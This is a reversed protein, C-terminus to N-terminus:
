RTYAPVNKAYLSPYIKTPLVTIFRIFLWCFVSWNKHLIKNVIEEGVHKPRLLPQIMNTIFNHIFYIMFM